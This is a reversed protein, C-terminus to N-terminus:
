KLEEFVGNLVVEADDPFILEHQRSQYKGCQFVRSPGRRDGQVGLSVLRPGSWEYNYDNRWRHIFTAATTASGVGRKIDYTYAAVFKPKSIAGRSVWGTLISPRITEGNFSNGTVEWIAGNHGIFRKNWPEIYLFTDAPYRQYEGTLTNWKGWIYWEQVKLNFAFTISEHTMDGITINANPFSCVYFAQGRFSQIWARAGSVDTIDNVPVDVAFSILEKQKGQILRCLRRSGGIITLFYISESDFAVSYPAPTGNPQSAAGNSAFPNNADGSIYAVEVSERGIAYVESFTVFISQVPDPLLENNFVEWTAYGEDDSYWIDGPIPTGTADDGAALLFGKIWAVSKVNRPSQGGMVTLSGDFRHIYSNAAFYVADRDETFSVPIGAQFSAGTVETATGDEDLTWVRGSCCVLRFGHLTSYFDGDVTVNGMGLDCFLTYGPIGYISQGIRFGNYLHASVDDKRATRDGELDMRGIALALEPM